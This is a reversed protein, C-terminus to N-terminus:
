KGLFEPSIQIFALIRKIQQLKKSTDAALVAQSVTDAIKLLLPSITNKHTVSAICKSVVLISTNDVALTVLIPKLKPHRYLKNCITKFLVHIEASSDIRFDVVFGDTSLNVIRLTVSYVNIHHHVSKAMHTHTHTSVHPTLVHTHIYIRAPTYM